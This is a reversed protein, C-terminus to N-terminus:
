LKRFIIYNMETNPQSNTTLSDFPNQFGFLVQGTETITNRFVPCPGLCVDAFTAVINEGVLVNPDLCSVTSSGQPPLSPIDVECAGFFLKDTGAIKSGTVANDAIDNTGIQKITYVNTPSPGDIVAGGSDRTTITATTSGSPIAPNKIGAIELRVFTGAPISVPTQVDYSISSGAKLLTGGGIGVREIVGSAGINTGAPFDIRIRDIAGPTSTIFTVEYIANSNVIDSSQFTRPIQLAAQASFNGPSSVPPTAMTATSSPSPSPSAMDSVLPTSHYNSSDVKYLNNPTAALAQTPNALMLIPSSIVMFAIISMIVIRSYNEM